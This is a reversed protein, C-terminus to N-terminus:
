RMPKRFWDGSMRFWMTQGMRSTWFGIKSLDGPFSESKPDFMSRRPELHVRFYMNEGIKWHDLSIRENIKAVLRDRAPCENEAVLPDHAPADSPEKGHSAVVEEYEAANADHHPVVGSSGAEFGLGKLRDASHVDLDLVGRSTYASISWREGQFPLTAHVQDPDFSAVKCDLAYGPEGDYLVDGDPHQFWLPGGTHNGVSTLQNTSGKLNHVDKRPPTLLNRGVQISSWEGSAGRSRLYSNLYQVLIQRRETLGAIGTFSGHAYAGFSYTLSDQVIGRRGKRVLPATRLLRLCTSPRFDGANLAVFADRESDELSLVGQALNAEDEQTEGRKALSVQCFRKM